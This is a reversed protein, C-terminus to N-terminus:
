NLIRYRAELYTSAAFMTDALLDNSNFYMKVAVNKIIGPQYTIRDLSDYGEIVFNDIGHFRFSKLGPNVTRTLDNQFVYNITDVVGNNDLDAQFSISNANIATIKKASRYGIKNFDYDIVKKLEVSSSQVIANINKSSTFNSYMFYFGMICLLLLGGIILSGPIELSSM